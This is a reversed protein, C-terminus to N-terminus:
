KKIYTAGALLYANHILDTKGLKCLRNLTSKCVQSGLSFGMLSFTHDSFIHGKCALFHALHKGTIKANNRATKFTDLSDMTVNGVYSALTTVNKATFLDKVSSVNQALSMINTQEAKENM